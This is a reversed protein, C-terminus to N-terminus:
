GRCARSCKSAHGDRRGHFVLLAGVGSRTSVSRVFWAVRRGTFHIHWCETRPSYLVLSATECFELGVGCTSQPRSFLGDGLRRIIEAVKSCNSGPCSLLGNKERFSRSEDLPGFQDGGGSAADHRCLLFHESNCYHVEQRNDAVIMPRYFNRKSRPGILQYRWDNSFM